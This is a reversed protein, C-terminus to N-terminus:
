EKKVKKKSKRVKSDDDKKKSIREKKSASRDSTDDKSKSTHEVKNDNKSEVSTISEEPTIGV